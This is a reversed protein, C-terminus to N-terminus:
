VSTFLVGIKIYAKIKKMTMVVETITVSSNINRSYKDTSTHM